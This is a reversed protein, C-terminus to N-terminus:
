RTWNCDDVYPRMETQVWDQNVREWMTSFSFQPGLEYTLCWQEESLQHSDMLIPRSHNFGEIATSMEANLFVMAQDANSKLRLPLGSCNSLLVISFFLLLRFLKLPCWEIQNSVLNVHGIVTKLM